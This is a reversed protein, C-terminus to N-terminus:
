HKSRRAFETFRFKDVQHRSETYQFATNDSLYVHSKVSVIHRDQPNLDLLDKDEESVFDITIEKQAYAINLGLVNELYQYISDAAIEATLGECADARLIDRDLVSYKDDIKRRRLLDVVRSGLPFGTLDSLAEDCAVEEFRVVDTTTRFGLSAQLEKYSTLGSIPFRLKEHAIVISGFGHRRQILGNEELVKLAARVTARSAQYSEALQNESPLRDNAQYVDKYIKQELDSAISEYKKM